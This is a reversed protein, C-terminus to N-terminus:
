SQRGAMPKVHMQRLYTSFVNQALERLEYRLTSRPSFEALVRGYNMCAVANRYDNALCRIHRGDLAEEAEKVTIMSYRKRYRNALLTINDAAVGKSALAALFRRVVAVDKVTLQFVMFTMDSSTALEAATDSPIRPADVVVYKYAYKGAQITEKLREYHLHSASAVDIAAPSLLVHLRESYAHATSRILQADIEGKRALIDAIGFQGRLGLYTGVAGYSLDLDVVLVPEEVLLGLENALNIALTTAGSGGSGSLVTIVRGQAPSLVAGNPLLRKLAGILESAIRNKVMFHRVGVQMAELVLDNQFEDAFVIFRTQSFKRSLPELRALTGRPNPDIDVLVAEKPEHELFAALDELSSCIAGLTFGNNPGLACTVADRVVPSESVLLIESKAAM